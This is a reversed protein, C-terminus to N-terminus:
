EGLEEETTVFYQKGNIIMHAPTHPPFQFARVKRDFIPSNIEEKDIKSKGLLDKHRYEHAVEGKTILEAQPIRPIQDNGEMEKLLKLFANQLSNITKVFFSFATERKSVQFYERKVIDGTDVGEDIFHLTGAGREVGELIAHNAINTGRFRPLEGGHLNIIGPRFLSYFSQKFLINYRVSIGLIPQKMALKEAEILSLRIIGNSTCYELTSPYNLGHHDFQEAAYDDCVVGLLDMKGSESIKEIVWSALPVNGFVIVKM